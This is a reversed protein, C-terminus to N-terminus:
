PLFRYIFHAISGLLFYDAGRLSNKSQQTVGNINLINRSAFLCDVKFKTERQFFLRNLGRPQLVKKM